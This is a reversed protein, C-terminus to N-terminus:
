PRSVAVVHRVMGDGRDGDDGADAVPMAGVAAAVRLSATNRPDVLVHAERAGTHDALFRLVLRV